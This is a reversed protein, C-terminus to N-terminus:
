QVKEWSNPDSPNGGKFRYGEQVDGAKPPAAPDGSPSAGKQEGSIGEIASKLEPTLISRKNIEDLQKRATAADIQENQYASIITGREINLAAKAKVAASIAANAAPQNLLSPLSKLMGEYEVDSTAGSGPTRLSPAVRSIISKAADGASSIGPFMNALRGQIPGQPAVKLLEDLAGMDQQLAGATTAGELLTSWRKGEEESLKKRLAGDAGGEGGVNVSTASAKKNNRQWQGFPEPQRGAKTEQAVYYEYERVDSPAEPPKQGGKYAPEIAGTRPNTRIVTGDPLTSFGYETPKAQELKNKILLEVVGRQGEDLWPNQAAALLDGMSPGAEATRVPQPTNPPNFQQPAAPSSAGPLGQAISLVKQGYQPDTAYGSAQLAQAQQELGQAAKLGAYRPNTNIFNAYDAASQEPGAYTRFSAQTAVPQGGEVETTALTQGGPAGHSKIGFYNGGPASKGWGTELASQAAIIRPDIGTEASAKQALPMLLDVFKQKDGGIAPAPAAGEAPASQPGAFSMPPASSGGGGMVARTIKSIADSAEKRGAAEQEDARRAGLGGVLANAVRAAGQTWHQVPSADMGQSMLAEALKRKRDVSKPSVPAGDANILFAM